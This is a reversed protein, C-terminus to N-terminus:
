VLQVFPRICVKCGARERVHATTNHSILILFKLILTKLASKFARSSANLSAPIIKVNPSLVKQSQGITCHCDWFKAELHLDRIKKGSDEGM